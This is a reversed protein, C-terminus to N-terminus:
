PIQQTDVTYWTMSSPSPHLLWGTLIHLLFFSDTQYLSLTPRHSFFELLVWHSQLLTLSLSFPLIVLHMDTKTYRM